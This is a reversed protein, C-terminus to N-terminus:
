LRERLWKWDGTRKEMEEILHTPVDTITGGPVQPGKGYCAAIVKNGPLRNGMYKTRFVPIGGAALCKEIFDKIASVGSGIVKGM